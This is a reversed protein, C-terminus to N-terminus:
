NDASCTKESFGTEMESDLFECSEPAEDHKPAEGDDVDDNEQIKKNRHHVM